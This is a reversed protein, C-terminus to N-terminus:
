TSAITDYMVLVQLLLTLTAEVSRLRELHQKATKHDLLAWRLRGRVGVKGLARTCVEHIENITEDVKILASMILVRTEEPLFKDVDLGQVYKLADLEAQLVLLRVALAALEVPADHVRRCFSTVAKATIAVTQLLTILSAASGIPDM